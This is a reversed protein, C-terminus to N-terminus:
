NDGIRLRRTNANLLEFRLSIADPPILELAREPWEIFCTNGSLLTEEVGAQVVEEIDNLRYLDMHFLPDGNPLRYENIITYTPSSVADEIGLLNCIIHVFTTKGAGMDGYLAFVHNVGYTDILTKAAQPAEDLTFTLEM